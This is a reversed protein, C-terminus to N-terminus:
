DEPLQKSKLTNQITVWGNGILYVAVIIAGLSDVYRSATSNPLITIYALAASVCTDVVAKAFYLKSQVSLIVNSKQRNLLRYRLWFICNTIMGLIAIVLGPIVSGREDQPSFLAVFVMAAGSICMAIGVCISATRELNDKTTINIDSKSHSYNYVLWSVIIAVLEGSRRIFDALQTSSRGFFFGLGVVIPGPASLLVSALLTREASRNRV